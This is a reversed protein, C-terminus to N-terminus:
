TTRAGRRTSRRASSALRDAPIGQETLQKLITEVDLRAYWVDLNGMAAFEAMAERYAGVAALVGARREKRKFGRDRGAIELSM